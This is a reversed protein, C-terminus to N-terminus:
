ATEQRFGSGTTAARYSPAAHVPSLPRPSFNPVARETWAAAFALASRWTSVAGQSLTPLGWNKATM